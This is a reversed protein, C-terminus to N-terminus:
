GAIAFAPVFVYTTFDVVSDLIDGSWRPLIEAVRRKRALAGDIGDIFLALGLWAFMTTWDGAAAALLALLACAAGLATLIHVSFALLRAGATNESERAALVGRGM